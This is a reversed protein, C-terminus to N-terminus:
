GALAMRKSLELRLRRSALCASGSGPMFFKLTTRVFRQSGASSLPPPPPPPRPASLPNATATTAKAAESNGDGDGNGSSLERARARLDAVAAVLWAEDGRHQAVSRDEADMAPLTAIQSALLEVDTALSPSSASSTSCLPAAAEFAEALALARSRLSVFDPQQERQGHGQQQGQQKSALWLDEVPVVTSIMM